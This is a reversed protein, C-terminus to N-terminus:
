RQKAPVRREFEEFLNLVVNIQQASRSMFPNNSAATTEKGRVMIFHQGDPTVDYNQGAFVTTMPEYEAEFLMKPNAAGFAAGTTIDVAMMKRGSRYFLERGNRGWVPETGGETSVQWKRGPGPFPQVYVQYAGSENSVYALWRGDPSLTGSGETFRTQLLPSSKGERSLMWVDWSRTSAQLGSLTLVQGDPSWSQPTLTAVEASGLEEEAGSGDAPKLFLHSSGNNYSTFTVRTGDPTWVPNWNYGEFTLRTLTERRVDYVWIDPKNEFITIALRGGDPSLRPIAYDRVPVRLPQATGRRDVWVLEAESSINGPVYVLSGSRSFGWQSSPGSSNARMVGDLIPVAAGTLELRQADFPAAMLTQGRAYVLHGTPLYRANTAGQALM